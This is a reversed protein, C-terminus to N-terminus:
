IKRRRKVIKMLLGGDKLGGGRMVPVPLKVSAAGIPGQPWRRGVAIGAAGAALGAGAIGAKWLARENSVEEAWSKERRVRKRSGPAFVRASRGRPDRVDWGADAATSDFSIVRSGPTTFKKKEMEVKQKGREAKRGVLAAAYSAGGLLAAGALGGGLARAGATKKLRVLAEHEARAFKERWGFAPGRSPNGSARIRPKSFPPAKGPINGRGQNKLVEKVRRANHKDRARYYDDARKSSAASAAGWYAGALGGVM